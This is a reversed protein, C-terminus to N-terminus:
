AKGQRHHIFRDIGQASFRLRRPGLRVTFPLKSARRYLWDKSVGLRVAAAAVSLLRDNLDGAGQDIAGSLAAPTLASVFLFSQVILCRALLTRAIEPSISAALEPDNAIEDLSPVHLVPPSVQRLAMTALRSEGLIM